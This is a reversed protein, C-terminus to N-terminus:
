EVRLYERLSAVLFTKVTAQIGPWKSERNGAINLVGVKYTELFLLLHEKSPNIISPRKYYKCLSSTLLSGSSSAKGFLITADSNIVNVGTRFPYGPEIAEVLGFSQLLEKKAGVETFWNMPATGGTELGLTKGAELGGQDAGTQGGSIIKKLM